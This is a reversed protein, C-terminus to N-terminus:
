EGRRDGLARSAEAAWTLLRVAERAHGQLDLFEGGGVYLWQALDLVGNNEGSQWSWEAAAMLNALEAELAAYDRTYR